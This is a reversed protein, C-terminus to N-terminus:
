IMNVSKLRRIVENEAAIERKDQDSATGNAIRLRRADIMPEPYGDIYPKLRKYAAEIEDFSILNDSEDTKLNTYIIIQGENDEGIEAGHVKIYEIITDLNWEM